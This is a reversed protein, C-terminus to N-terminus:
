LRLTEAARMYRNNTANDGPEDIGLELRIINQPHRDHLAKQGATDIIDYPPSVVDRVSGISSLDYLTGRFPIIQAMREERCSTSLRTSRGRPVTRLWGAPEKLPQAAKGRTARRM